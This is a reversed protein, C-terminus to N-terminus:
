WLWYNTSKRLLSLSVFGRRQEMPDWGDELSYEWFRVFNYAVAASVVALIALRARSTSVYLGVRLPHVVALYRETTIVMFLWVSASQLMMSLPYGYVVMVHGFEIIWYSNHINLAPLAFIPVIQFVNNEKIFRFLLPLLFLLPLATGCHALPLRNHESGLSTRQHFQADVQALVRLHVAFQRVRRHLM